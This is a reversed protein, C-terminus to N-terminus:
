IIDSLPKGILGVFIGKELLFKKLGRFKRKSMWPINFNKIRKSM